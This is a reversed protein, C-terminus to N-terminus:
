AAQKGAAKAVQNRLSKPVVEEPDLLVVLNDQVKGIGRVFDDTRDAFVAPNEDIQDDPISVIGDVCDVRLACRGFSTLVVVFNGTEPREPMEFRLRLDIAAVTSGRLDFVGLLMKPTRPLRTVAQDPLIREVLDIGIGYFEKGLKFIVHKQEAM